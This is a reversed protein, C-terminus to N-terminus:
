QQVQGEAPAQQQQGQTIRIYAENLAIADNESFGLKKLFLTDSLAFAPNQSSLLAEFKASEEENSSSFNPAIDPYIEFNITSIEEDLSALNVKGDKYYNFAYKFDKIGKITDLMLQGESLLMHEYTAMLQNQGRAANGARQRIAVGSIANTENGKLEDFLQTRQEFEINIRELTHFLHPLLTESNILQAQHPNKTFIIGDRRNLEDRYIKRMKEMDAGPDEIIIYKSNLGHATKTWVYNLLTSLPILGDVVGYPLGQYNRRLCLPLLPFYKQNPVQAAIPGSELLVDACFVGKWIQTCDIKKVETGEVKRAEALEEDFTTFYQEIVEGEEDEEGPNFAVTAEYCKANKKYYIEVIRISRGRTWVGSDDETQDGVGPSDKITGKGTLDDFYGAHKPYLNKLLVNPIFPDRGIFNSNDYWQSYDDPDLLLGRPDVLDYIFSQYSTPDYCFHICGLGGILADTYKQTSKNPVDNHTQISYVMNKVDEAKRRHSSLSTTSNFAIRKRSNIQLSVYTTVIPEVRNVVFPMAGVDAFEQKLEDNWQDGYYFKLNLEYQQRWRKRVESNRAYDYYDTLEQLTKQQGITQTLM